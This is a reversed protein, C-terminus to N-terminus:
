RTIPVLAMTAWNTAATSVFQDPGYPFSSDFYPQFPISRSRVYWSGDEFQTNMLFQAGRRYAADSPMVVGAEKLAVLAQGTAYADSALSPTQAWGGDSRQERLLDRAAKLVMEQNGGAWMLGFLQFARDETTKPHAKALWEAALQVTKDYEAQQPKLMYVQIARMATATGQIDSSEIPPRGGFNRWSGDARQRIKLYRAM